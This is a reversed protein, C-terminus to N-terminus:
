RQLQGAFPLRTCLASPLASPDTHFSRNPRVMVEIAPENTVARKEGRDVSTDSGRRRNKLSMWTLLLFLALFVSLFGWMKATMGGAFLSSLTIIPFVLYVLLTARQVGHAEFPLPFIFGAVFSAIAYSILVKLSARM